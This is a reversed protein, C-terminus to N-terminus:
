ASLAEDVSPFIEFVKDLGTIVFVKLVRDHACVLRMTGDHVRIQKLRGVLVGLGTSDMFGVGSLDVVLDHRGAEIEADLRERLQPATYVDVEGEVRVVTLGDNVSTTIDLDM